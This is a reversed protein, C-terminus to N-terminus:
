AGSVKFGARRARRLAELAVLCQHDAISSNRRAALNIASIEGGTLKKNSSAWHQLNAWIQTGLREVEIRAEMGTLEKKEKKAAKQKDKEEAVSLLDNALSVPWDVALEQVRTWCASQKAWESINQGSYFPTTIVEMVADTAVHLAKRIGATLGQALWIKEFHISDGRESIDWALKAITHAVIQARYGGKYWPRDSVIRETEKFIIAKAVCDHFFAVNVLTFSNDNWKRSIWQAFESFNKQAGRCVSISNIKAFEGPWLNMYKALDTKTILQKKPWEADFKKQAAQSLRSRENLFQGRSREYFWKTQSFSGEAAPALTQRSLKEL